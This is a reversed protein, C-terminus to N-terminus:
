DLADLTRETQTEEQALKIYRATQARRFIFLAAGSPILIGFPIQAFSAGLYLAALIALTGLVGKLGWTQGSQAAAFICSFVFLLILAPGLM